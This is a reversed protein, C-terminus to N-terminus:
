VSLHRMKYIMFKPRFLVSLFCWHPSGWQCENLSERSCRCPEEQARPNNISEWLPWCSNPGRAKLDEAEGPACLQTQHLAFPPAWLQGPSSKGEPCLCIILSHQSQEGEAEEMEDWLSLRCTGRRLLLLDWKATPSADRLDLRAM